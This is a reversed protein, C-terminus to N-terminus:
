INNIQIAAHKSFNITFKDNFSFFTKAHLSSSKPKLCCKAYHGLKGCNCIDIEHIDHLVLAFIVCLFIKLSNVQTITYLILMVIM